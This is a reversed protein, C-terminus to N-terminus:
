EMGKMEDPPKGKKPHNAPMPAITSGPAHCALCAEPPTKRNFGSHEPRPTMAAAKRSLSSLLVFIGVVVVLVAIFILDKRKMSAPAVVGSRTLKRFRCNLM